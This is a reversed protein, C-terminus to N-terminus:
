MAQTAASPFAGLSNLAHVSRFCTSGIVCSHKIISVLVLPALLVHINLLPCPIGTRFYLKEITETKRDQRHEVNNYQRM